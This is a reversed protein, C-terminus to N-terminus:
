FRQNQATKSQHRQSRVELADASWHGRATNRQATAFRSQAPIGQPLARLRIAQIRHAKELANDFELEPQISKRVSSM